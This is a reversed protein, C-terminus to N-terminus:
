SGSIWRRTGIGTGYVRVSASPYTVAYESKPQALPLLQVHAMVIASSNAAAAQETLSSLGDDLESEVARGFSQAQYVDLPVGIRAIDCRSADGTTDAKLELPCEPETGYSPM